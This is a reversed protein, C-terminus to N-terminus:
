IELGRRQTSYGVNSPLEFNIISDDPLEIVLLANLLGLQAFLRNIGPINSFISPSYKIKIEDINAKTWIKGSIVIKDHNVHSSFQLCDSVIFVYSKPPLYYEPIEYEYYDDNGRVFFLINLLFFLFYLRKFLM